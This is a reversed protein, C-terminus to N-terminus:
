HRDTARQTAHAAMEVDHSRSQVQGRTLGRLSLDEASLFVLGAVVVPLLLVAHTVITYAGAIADPVGFSDALTRQLFFDYTGVYGPAAPLITVLNAIVMGAILSLLGSNFGLAFMLFIYTGLEALWCLISLPVIQLVSKPNEIVRVGDVLSRALDGLKHHMRDALGIGFDFLRDLLRKPVVTIVLLGIIGVATVTATTGALALVVGGLPVLLLVVTMLACLVFLDLLREILITALSSAIPVNHSRKLLYTRVLEGLRLPVINNVALGILITRFLRGASVDAFPAMLLRWRAARLWIGVFYIAVSPLIWAPSVSGLTAGLTALVLTWLFLVLLSLGVV